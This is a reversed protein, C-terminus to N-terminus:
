LQCMKILPKSNQNLILLPWLYFPIQFRQMVGQNKVPSPLLASTFGSCGQGKIREGFPNGCRAREQEYWEYCCAGRRM